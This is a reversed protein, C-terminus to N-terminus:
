LPRGLHVQANSHCKASMQFAVQSLPCRCTSKNQEYTFLTIDYERQFHLLRNLLGFENSKSSKKKKYSEKLPLFRDFNSLKKM